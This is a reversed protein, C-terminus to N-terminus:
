CDTRPPVCRGCLISGIGIPPWKMQDAVFVGLGRSSIPPALPTTGSMHMNLCRWNAPLGTGVARGIRAACALVHDVVPLEALDSMAVSPEHEANRQSSFMGGTPGSRDTPDVQRHDSRQHFQKAPPSVAEHAAAVFKDFRRGNQQHLCPVRRLRDAGIPETGGPRKGVLFAAVAIM